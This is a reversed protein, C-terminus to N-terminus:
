LEAKPDIFLFEAEKRAAISEELRSPSNALGMAELDPEHAFWGGKKDIHGYM